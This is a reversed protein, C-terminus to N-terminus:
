FEKIGLFDSLNERYNEKLILFYNFGCFFLFWFYDGRDLEKEM